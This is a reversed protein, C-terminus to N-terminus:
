NGAAVDVSELNSRFHWFMRLAQRSVPFRQPPDHRQRATSEHAAQVLRELADLDIALVDALVGQVREVIGNRDM